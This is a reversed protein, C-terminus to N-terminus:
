LRTPLAMAFPLHGVLCPGQSTGLCTRCSRSTRSGWARRQRRLGARTLHWSPVPMRMERKLAIKAAILSVDRMQHLSRSCKETPRSGVLFTARGELPHPSRTENSTDKTTEVVKRRARREEHNLPLHSFLLFFGIRAVTKRSGKSTRTSCTGSAASCSGVSATTRMVWAQM